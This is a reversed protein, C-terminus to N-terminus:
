IIITIYVVYNIKTFFFSFREKELNNKPLQNITIDITISSLVKIASQVVPAFFHIGSLTELEALAEKATKSKKYIRSTTMADFCDALALINGVVPIEDGKYGIPYGSGDIREHHYKIIMELYEFMQLKDLMHSGYLVHEQIIEIDFQNFVSPKLLVSDPIIIKGIDHLLGAKYIKECEEKTLKLDEAILQAYQAVRKSHGGTYTDRAEIIEVFSFVTDEISKLKENQMKTLQQTRQNVQQSLEKKTMLWKNRLVILFIVTTIAVLGMIIIFLETYSVGIIKNDSFYKAYINHYEKTSKIELIANDFEPILYAKDKAVAVARKIEKLPEGFPQVYDHVNLDMALSHVLPKPYCLADIEGSLLASFARGLENYTIKQNTTVNQIILDECVNKSVVGITKEQLNDIDQINKSITRKFLTIEFIDTPQTFVFLEERNSAMGLNPVISAQNNEFYPYVDKWDNVIIYEYQLNTKQAILEFLEIAYGTPKGDRDTAYYPKWDKLIVVKHIEKKTNEGFLLNCLLLTYIVFLKTSLRILKFM